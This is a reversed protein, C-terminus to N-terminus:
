RTRRKGPAGAKQGEDADRLRSRFSRSALCAEVNRAAADLDVGAEEFLREYAAALHCNALILRRAEERGRATLVLPRRRHNVPDPQQEIFRKEELAKVIRVALPHTIGIEASIEAVCAGPRELLFLLTPGAGPTVSLGREPFWQGAGDFFRSALRRLRHGAFARGGRDVFTM